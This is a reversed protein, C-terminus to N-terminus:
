YKSQDILGFTFYSASTIQEHVLKVNNKMRSLLQSIQFIYRPIKM